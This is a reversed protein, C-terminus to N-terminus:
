LETLQWGGAGTLHLKRQHYCLLTNRHGVSVIATNPLDDILLQYLVKETHEDLASTAEDLFVWDPHTLLVRAFAIRQQEGLSLIRTWDDTQDLKDRLGSLLCKDLAAKIQADSIAASEAPYFLVERLTGLPLYPRQPLFLRRAGAPFTIAGGGFPWIGALTRLLTSKGCGSAGTVLLKEGAKLELTLGSLLSQGAPLHVTLDRISLHQVTSEKMQTDSQIKEVSEMHAIFGLLRKVVATWQAILSYSDVLFSLADQVRGFASNTQMVGGLQMQGSFYRPAALLMPFIIALQGYSATFWTLRKEYKILSQYNKFAQWFRLLFNANEAAEGRYFAVSESNERFRVMQFRFDAEYRQQDYNLRILPNGVKAALYTGAAAYFLSIWVMYGYITFEYGGIPVTIVGSLQWLIVIFAALVAIQKLGGLVLTLTLTVFQNIDESIRQDPNDTEDGLLQMKYYTQEDLWKALYRQTMWSRWKLQLVQRLYITYVAIAIHIFALLGFQGILPWFDAARYEQLANYFTNYWQNLLVLVYVAAFNLVMVVALLGRAKWKEEANWYGKCLMWVSKVFSQEMLNM